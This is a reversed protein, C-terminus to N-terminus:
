YRYGYRTREEENFIDNKYFYIGLGVSTLLGLIMAFIWQGTTPTVTSKLYEFDKMPKRIYLGQTSADIAAFIKARDLTGIGMIQDRLTVQFLKNDTWAMIETWSIKGSDDINIVAIVDNKKGGIWQQEVAYYYDAPLNKAILLVVNVQKKHGLDSNLESLQKDWEAQDPLAVGINVVRNLRYYDYIRIPYEPMKDKFKEVLGQHRFLSNPAAKVYNTYSHTTSTPEGIQVADWRPPMTLGQRSVRDIELREDLTTYVAWDIDYSHEYCTQCITSCSRSKGSGSCSTRCNCTYSHSCSVRERAKSKVRGNWVERDTTNMDAIVACFIGIIATQVLLQIGFEKLTVKKGGFILFGLAVFTPILLMTLFIM